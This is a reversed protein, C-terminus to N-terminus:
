FSKFLTKINSIMSPNRKFSKISDDPTNWQHASDTFFNSDINLWSSDNLTGAKIFQIHPMEKVYSLVGSGCTECFGRRVHSGSTGKVEYFKLIGNMTINKKAVYLITAKGSGTSRQCDSCHCNHASILKETKFTYSILGCQCRGSQMINNTNNKIKKLQESEIFEEYEKNM